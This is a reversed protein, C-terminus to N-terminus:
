GGQVPRGSTPRTSRSSRDLMALVMMAAPLLAASVIEARTQRLDTPAAVDVDVVQDRTLEFRKLLQALGYQPHSADDAIALWDEESPARDLGPVALM